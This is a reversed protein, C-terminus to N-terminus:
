KELNDMYDEIRDLQEKMDSTQQKIVAIDTKVNGLKLDIRDDVGSNVFGVIVFISVILGAIAAMVKWHGNAQMTMGPGSSDM